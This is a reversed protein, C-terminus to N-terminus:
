TIIDVKDSKNRRQKVLTYSRINLNATIDSINMAARRPRM